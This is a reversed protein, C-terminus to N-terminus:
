DADSVGVGLEVWLRCELVSDWFGLYWMVLSVGFLSCPCCKCGDVDENVREPVGCKNAESVTQTKLGTCSAGFCGGDMARQLSDGKWGFVYDGHQGYGTADGTSLVFPQSGDSPWELDNFPTTDWVIQPTQPTLTPPLSPM